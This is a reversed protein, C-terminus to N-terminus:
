DIGAGVKIYYFDQLATTLVKVGPLPQKKSPAFGGSIKCLLLIAEKITKIPKKNLKSMVTVEEVKFLETALAEPNQRVMYTVALLQWAIISYFALANILTHIDEFQMKEANIAGTKLTYHLREVRWRLSYFRIVRLVDEENDIPMSTLLYWYCATEEKYVSEGTECDVRAIERAVVLSLGQTKHKNASLDKNPYINVREARVELTLEVEKSKEQIITKTTGLVKLKKTSEELSQVEGSSIIEVNRPQCVRVLIEINDAREQKFFEFIDAERDQVVVVRKNIGGLTENVVALGKEWKYSEKKNEEFNRAGGRTWYQQDLLGLPMGKDTLLLLNHQALGKTNKAILGMGEINQSNYNYFTTDQAGILWESDTDLARKKTEKIHGSLMTKENITKKSFIGAVTQRFSNGLSSSFSKIPKSITIGYAKGLSRKIQPRVELMGTFEQM